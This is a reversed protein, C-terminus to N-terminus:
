KYTVLAVGAIITAVGLWRTISINEKFIMWAAIVGLVYALSQLPYAYSLDTKSLIMFWLVTAIVYLLVGGIIFPSVMINFINAASFGGTRDLGIKWMIQGSTLLLINMIILYFSNM